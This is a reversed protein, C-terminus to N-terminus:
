LLPLRCLKNGRVDLTRPGRRCYRGVGGRRDRAVQRMPQVAGLQGGGGRSGVRPPSPALFLAHVCESLCCMAHLAGSGLSVHMLAWPVYSM